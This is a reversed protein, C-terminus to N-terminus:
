ATSGLPVGHSANRETKQTLRGIFRYNVWLELHRKGSADFSEQVEVSEILKLVAGRDLTDIQEYEVVLELWASIDQEVDKHAELEGSIDEHEQQLTAKESTYSGMMDSFMEDPIVGSVRDEYLKKFTTAILDFRHDIERLRHRLKESSKQEEGDKIEMLDTAIQIREKETLSAYRKIDNLIIEVVMPEPLNHSSCVSTGKSMYGQCRYRKAVSKKLQQETYALNADCDVCKLIGSFLSPEGTSQLRRKKPIPSSMRKQVADWVSREILPEHTGEVIIWDEPPVVRRRKTKFSVVQRKGQVMNGIYVHNRMMQYITGSLWANKKAQPPYTGTRQYHYFQPSDIRENTLRDAIGRANEGIAFEAFM